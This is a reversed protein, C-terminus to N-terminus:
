QSISRKIQMLVCTSNTKASAFRSELLLRFLASPEQFLILPELGLLPFVDLDDGQEPRLDRFKEVM